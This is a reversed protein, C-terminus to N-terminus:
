HGGLGSRWEPAVNDPEMYDMIDRISRVESRDGGQVGFEACLSEYTHSTGWEKTPDSVLSLRDVLERLSFTASPDGFDALPGIVRALYHMCLETM